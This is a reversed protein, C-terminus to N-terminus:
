LAINTMVRLFPMEKTYNSGVTYHFPFKQAVTQLPSTCKTQIKKNTKQSRKEKAPRNCKYHQCISTRGDELCERSTQNCKWSFPRNGRANRARTYCVYVELTPDLSFQSSCFLFLVSASYLCFLFLVSVYCLCFHFLYICVCVCVRCLAFM